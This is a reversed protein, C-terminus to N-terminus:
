KEGETKRRDGNDQSDNGDDNDGVRTVIRTTNKRGSNLVDSLKSFQMEWKETVRRLEVKGLNATSQSAEMADAITKLQAGIELVAKKLPQATTGVEEPELPPYLAAGFNTASDVAQKCSFWLKAIEKMGWLSSQHESGSGTVDNGSVSAIIDMTDMASKLTARLMKLSDVCISVLPLSEPEYQEEIGFDEFELDEANDVRSLGSSKEATDISPKELPTADVIAQFEDITDRVLGSQLMLSRRYAIRNSKPVRKFKEAADWIVGTVPAVRRSHAGHHLITEVLEIAAACVGETVQMAESWLPGSSGATEVDLLVAMVNENLQGFENCISRVAPDDVTSGSSLVLVLKRASNSIAEAARVLNELQLTLQKDAVWSDGVRNCKVTKVESGEHIKRLDKLRHLLAAVAEEQQQVPVLTAMVCSVLFISVQSRFLPFSYASPLISGEVKQM